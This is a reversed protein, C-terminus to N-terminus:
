LGIAGLNEAVLVAGLSNRAPQMFSHGIKRQQGLRQGSPWPCLSLDDAGELLLEPRM